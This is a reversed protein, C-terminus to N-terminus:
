KALGGGISALGGVGALGGKGALSHVVGGGGAAPPYYWPPLHNGPGGQSPHFRRGYHNGQGRYVGRSNAPM